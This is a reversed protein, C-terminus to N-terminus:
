LSSTLGWDLLFLIRKVSPASIDVIDPVAVTRSAEVNRNVHLPSPLGVTVYAHLYTALLVRIDSVFTRVMALALQTSVPVYRHVACFVKPLAILSISTRM